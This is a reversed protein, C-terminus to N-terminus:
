SELFYEVADLKREFIEFLSDAKILVGPQHQSPLIELQIQQEKLSALVQYVFHELSVSDPSHESWSGQACSLSLVSYSWVPLIYAGNEEKMVWGSENSLGWVEESEMARTLFYDLREENSANALIILETPTPAHHM